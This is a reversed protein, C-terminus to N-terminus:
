PAEHSSPPPSPAEERGGGKIFSDQSLHELAAKAGDTLLYQFNEDDDTARNLADLASQLPEAFKAEKAWERGSMTEIKKALSRHKQQAM